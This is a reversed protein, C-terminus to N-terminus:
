QKEEKDEERENREDNVQGAQTFAFVGHSATTELYESIVLRNYYSVIFALLSVTIKTIVSEKSHKEKELLQCSISVKYQYLIFGAYSLYLM